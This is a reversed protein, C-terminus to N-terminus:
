WTRSGSRRRRVRGAAATRGEGTARLAAHEAHRQANRGHRLPHRREPRVPDDPRLERPRRQRLRPHVGGLCGAGPGAVRPGAGEHGEEPEAAEEDGEARGRVADRDGPLGRQVGRPDDPGGARRRRGPEHLGRHLVGPSPPHPAALRRDGPAGAKVAPKNGIFNDDVFFVDGAFGTDRIAELEAIVQRGTKTRPKRGYMVIIDCFECTFPCGRSYQLSMQHYAGRKLLDYRPLPSAGMDPKGDERYLHQARGAELDAALIPVLDEGEGAVVHDALALERPLATAYPGGVVTRVGLKRCRGLVEHLSPRQVLMGSLMVVDAWRIQEDTLPEVDLDVLRLEWNRPLLAAVTILGLPPLLSRRRAFRLSFRGSWYSDPFAPNVLLARM